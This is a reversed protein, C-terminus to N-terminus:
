GSHAQFFNHLHHSLKDWVPTQEDESTKAANRALMRCADYWVAARQEPTTARAQKENWFAAQNRKRTAEAQTTM